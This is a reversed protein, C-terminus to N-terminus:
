CGLRRRPVLGAHLLTLRTGRLSQREEGAGLGVTSSCLSAASGSRFETEADGAMAVVLTLM